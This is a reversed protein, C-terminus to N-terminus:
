KTDLEKGGVVGGVEKVREPLIIGDGDFWRAALLAPEGDFPVVRSIVDVDGHGVGGAFGQLAELVGYGRTRLVRGVFPKRRRIPGLHLVRWVGHGCRFKIFAADRAHLADNAVEEVDRAGDVGSFQRWALKM